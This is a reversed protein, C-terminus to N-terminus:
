DTMYGQNQRAGNRLCPSKNASFQAYKESWERM